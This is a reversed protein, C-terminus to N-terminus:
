INLLRVLHKGRTDSDDQHTPTPKKEGKQDTTCGELIVLRRESIYGAYGKKSGMLLAKGPTALRLTRSADLSFM